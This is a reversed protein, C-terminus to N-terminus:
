RTNFEAKRGFLVNAAALQYNAEASLATVIPTMSLAAPSGVLDSVKLDLFLRRVDEPLGNAYSSLMWTLAWIPQTAGYVEIRREALTPFLNQLGQYTMNYYHHPYGHLPQLFPVCCVLDGGPKLVRVLERAAQFPDKVHELVALSLVADFSDDEFPLVEAVGLVDTSDYPVIEYNVVHGFYTDRQGAGCDLVLGGAHRRIVEMVRDDYGNASVNDTPVINFASRLEDSLCDIRGDREIAGSGAKLLPRLRELKARRLDAPVEHRLHRGELVAYRIFHAEASPCSGETIAESVDPNGRLYAREEFVADRAHVTLPHGNVEPLAPATPAAADEPRRWQRILHGLKELM